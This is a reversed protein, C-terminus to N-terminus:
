VCFKLLLEAHRGLPGFIALFGGLENSRSFKAVWPYCFLLYRGSSTPRPTCYSLEKSKVALSCITSLRITLLVQLQMLHEIGKWNTQVQWCDGCIATQLFPIELRSDNKHNFSPLLVAHSKRPFTGHHRHCWRSRRALRHSLATSRSPTEIQHLDFFESLLAEAKAFNRSFQAQSLPRDSAGQLCIGTACRRALVGLGRSTLQASTRSPVTSGPLYFVRGLLSPVIGLCTRRGPPQGFAQHLSTQLM